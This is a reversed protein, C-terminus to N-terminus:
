DDLEVEGDGLVKEMWEAVAADEQRGSARLAAIVGLRDEMSRNQNLKRKAHLVPREMVLGVIAGQMGRVMKGYKGGVSELKWPEHGGGLGAENVQVLEELHLGLEGDNMVRVPGVAHIALYNWTPVTRQNAYWAPSVYAHPGSFIVRVEGGEALVAAQENARAVHFELQVGDGALKAVIPLHSALVRGQTACTVVAFAHRHMFAMQGAMDDAWLNKTPTYM